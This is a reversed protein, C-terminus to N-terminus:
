NMCYQSLTASLDRKHAPPLCDTSIFSPCLGYQLRVRSAAKASHPDAWLATCPETQTPESGCMSRLLWNLSFRHLPTSLLLCCNVQCSVQVFELTRLSKNGAISQWFNDDLETVWNPNVPTREAWLAETAEDQQSVTLCVVSCAPATLASVWEVPWEAVKLQLAWEQM